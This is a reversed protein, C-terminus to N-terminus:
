MVEGSSIRSYLRELTEVVEQVGCVPAGAAVLDKVLEALAADGHGDSRQRSILDIARKGGAGRLGLKQPIAPKDFRGREPKALLGAKDTAGRARVAAADGANSSVLFLREM